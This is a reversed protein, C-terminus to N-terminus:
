KAIASYICVKHELTKKSMEMDPKINKNDAVVFAEGEYTVMFAEKSDVQNLDSRRAVRTPFQKKTGGRLAKTSDKGSDVVVLFREGVVRCPKVERVESVIDKMKAEQKKATEKM